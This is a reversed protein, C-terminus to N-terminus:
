DIMKENNKKVIKFKFKRIKKLNSMKRINKKM